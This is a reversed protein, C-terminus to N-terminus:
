SEFLNKRSAVPCVAENSKLTVRRQPKIADIGITL